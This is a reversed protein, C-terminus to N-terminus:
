FHFNAGGGFYITHQVNSQLGQFFLQAVRPRGTLYDRVETRFSLRPIRTAVDLGGGIQGAATTDPNSSHGFHVFGAGLSAFPSIRHGPLFAASLSPTFFISSYNPGPQPFGNDLGRNPAIFLPLELNLT